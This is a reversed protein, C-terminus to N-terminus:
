VLIVHIGLGAGVFGFHLGDGLLRQATEGRHIGLALTLDGAQPTAGGVLAAVGVFEGALFSASGALLAVGAAFRLGHGAFARAGSLTSSRRRRETPAGCRVRALAERSPRVGRPRRRGAQGCENERRGALRRVAGDAATGDQDARGKPLAGVPGGPRTRCHAGSGSRVSAAIEASLKEWPLCWPCPWSM